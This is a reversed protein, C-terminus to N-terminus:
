RAREAMSDLDWADWNTPVDKYMCLCNGPAAMQERGSEKDVMSVLEGFANFEARLLENELCASGGPLMRARASQEASPLHTPGAVTTWGCPPM